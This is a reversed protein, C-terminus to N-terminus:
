PCHHVADVADATKLDHLDAASIGAALIAARTLAIKANRRTEYDLWKTRILSRQTSTSPM